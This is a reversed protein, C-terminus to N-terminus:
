ALICILYELKPACKICGESNCLTSGDVRKRNALAVFLNECGKTAIPVHMPGFERVAEASVPLEGQLCTVLLVWMKLTLITFNPILTRVQSERWWALNQKLFDSLPTYGNQAFKYWFYWNERNQPNYAWMKFGVITFTPTLTRVQSV